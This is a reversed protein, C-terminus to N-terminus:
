SRMFRAVINIRRSNLTHSERSTSTPYSLERMQSTVLRIEDCNRVVNVTESIFDKSMRESDATLSSASNRSMSASYSLAFGRAFASCKACPLLNGSYTARMSIPPEAQLATYNDVSGMGRSTRTRSLLGPLSSKVRQRGRRFACERQQHYYSM